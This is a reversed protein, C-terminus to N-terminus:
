CRSLPHAPRSISGKIIYVQAVEVSGVGKIGLDEIDRKVGSDFGHDKDFVEVRWLM